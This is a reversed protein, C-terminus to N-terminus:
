PVTMQIVLEPKNGGERSVFRLLDGTTTLAINYTGNGTILSTVDVEIWNNASVPAGTAVVSGTAPANNYTIGTETWTNNSVSRVQVGATSADFSHFRLTAQTVPYNLGSVTFRLYSRRDPSADTGVRWETGYNTTPNTSLVYSDAVPVFTVPPLTPPDGAVVAVNLGFESTNGASDIATGTVVQGVAVGSIGVLTFAGSGDATTTGLYTKGEGYVGASGDALFLEVTCGACATGALAYPTASSIVPFNLQENPGVDSDDSDNPNVAGLPVIDIGLGTNAYFSNRTIRNRDNEDIGDIQLGVPNNAVTNGPGFVQDAGKISAGYNLNAINVGGPTVGIWNNEFHNNFICCSFYEDAFVGGARNTGVVNHAVLNNAVRDKLVIGYNLNYTYSQPQGYPDIGVYNGVIQNNAARPEHSIEIGSDGNGAVVNRQGTATGGVTNSAAGFNIDIGHLRNNLRRTGDPSLGVINNYFVNFDSNHWTSIGTRGNGSIINREANSTGGVRNNGAGQEITVGSPRGTGSTLTVFTGTSDTGIFNGVLVNNSAQAGYIYIARNSNYTAIGRITNGSGTIPFNHFGNVGGGTIQIKIVANSITGDTNAVAGPQSYGDIFLGGDTQSLTPLAKTLAITHPGAGAINFHITDAGAVSKAEGMAARLTCTGTQTACIGDGWNWDAEDGISNVVFTSAVGAALREAPAPMTRSLRAAITQMDAVTLCGDRNIDLTADFGACGLGANLYITEWNLAIESTDAYSVWGDRSLDLVEPAPAALRAPVPLADPRTPAVHLTSDEGVQVRVTAGTGALTVVNGLADVVQTDALRVELIGTTRPLLTVRSLEVTGNAGSAQWTKANGDDLCSNAPCSYFGFTIGQEFDAAGLPQVARGVQAVGNDRQNLGGYEAVSTDFLLSTQYGSINVANTAQVVLELPEGLAIQPPAMVQVAPRQIRAYTTPPTLIFGIMGLIAVILLYRGWQPFRHIFGFM